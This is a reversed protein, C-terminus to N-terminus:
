GGERTGAESPQHHMVDVYDALIHISENLIIDTSLSRKTSGVDPDDIGDSTPPSPRAGSKRPNDTFAAPPPLGPSSANKLTIEYVTPGAARHSKSELELGGKRAKSQALERRREAENLSVSKTVLNKKLQAIADALYRFEKKARIRRVSKERLADVYPKVRDLSEFQASPVADWPLPDKM